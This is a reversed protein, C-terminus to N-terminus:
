RPSVSVLHPMAEIAAQGPTSQAGPCYRFWAVIRELRSRRPTREGVVDHPQRGTRRIPADDVGPRTSDHPYPGRLPWAFPRMPGTGRRRHLSRRGRKITTRTDVAM